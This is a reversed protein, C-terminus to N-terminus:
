NYIRGVPNCGQRRTQQATGFSMGGNVVTAGEPKKRNIEFILYKYLPQQIIEPFCDNSFTQFYPVGGSGSFVLSKVM